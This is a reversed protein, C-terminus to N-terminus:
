GGRYYKGNAQCKKEFGRIQEVSDDFYAAPGRGGRCPLPSAKREGGKGRFPVSGTRSVIGKPDGPLGQQEGELDARCFM